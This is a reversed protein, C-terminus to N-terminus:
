DKPIWPFSSAPEKEEEEVPKILGLKEAKPRCDPCDAWLDLLAETPTPHSTTVEEIKGIKQQLGNVQQCLQPFRTCFDGMQGIVIAAVDEKTVGDPIIVPKGCHECQKTAM